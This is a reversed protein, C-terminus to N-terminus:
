QHTSKNIPINIMRYITNQHNIHISSTQTTIAPQNNAQESPLRDTYHNISQNASQNTQQSTPQNTAQSVPQYNASQFNFLVFLINKITCISLNCQGGIMEVDRFVIKLELVLLTLHQRSVTTQIGTTQIPRLTVRTIFQTWLEYVETGKAVSSWRPRVKELMLYRDAM